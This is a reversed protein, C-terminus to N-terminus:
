PEEAGGWLVTGQEALLAYTRSAGPHSGVLAVGGVDKMTMSDRSPNPTSRPRVRSMGTSSEVNTPLQATPLKRVWACASKMVCRTKGFSKAVSLYSAACQTVVAM